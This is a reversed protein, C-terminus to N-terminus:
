QMRPMTKETVQLFCHPSSLERRPAPVWPRRNPDDVRAFSIEGARAFTSNYDGGLSALFMAPDVRVVYGFRPNEEHFYSSLWWFGMQGFDLFVPKTAYPRSWSKILCSNGPWYFKWTEAREVLCRPIIDPWTLLPAKNGQCPFLHEEFISVDKGVCADVVWNMKGYFSERERITRSSLRSHQFEIVISESTKVDAIQRENPIELTFERQEKPFHKTDRRSLGNKGSTKSSAESFAHTFM